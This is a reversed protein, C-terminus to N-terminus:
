AALFGRLVSGSDMSCWTCSAMARTAPNLGYCRRARLFSSIRIVRSMPNMLHMWSWLRPGWLSWAAPM